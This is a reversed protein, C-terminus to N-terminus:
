DIEIADRKKLFEITMIGNSDTTVKYVGEMIIKLPPDIPDEFIYIPCVLEDDGNGFHIPFGPEFAM